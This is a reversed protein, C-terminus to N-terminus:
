IVEFFSSMNKEWKLIKEEVRKERELKQDLVNGVYGETIMENRTEKTYGAKVTSALDDKVEDWGVNKLEMDNNKQLILMMLFAGFAKPAREPRYNVIADSTYVIHTLKRKQDAKLSPTEELGIFWGDNIVQNVLDVYWKSFEMWDPRESLKTKLDYLMSYSSWIARIGIDKLLLSPVSDKLNILDRCLKEYAAEVEKIDIQSPTQSKGFCIWKYAFRGYATTEENTKKQVERIDAIYKKIPEINELVYIISPLLYNSFQNRAIQSNEHNLGVIQDPHIRTEVHDLDLRPIIQSSIVNRNNKDGLLYHYFWDKLDRVSYLSAPGSISLGNREEGRWDFVALPLGSFTEQSEKDNDHAVQIVEQVAISNIDENDLLIARSENIKQSKNNIYVFTKRVEDLLLPNHNITTDTNSKSFGVILVPIKMNEVLPDHKDDNLIAKLATVRHQGDVAVLKIEQDRADVQFQSFEEGASMGTVLMWHVEYGQAALKLITGGCGLTEDDAHPAVFLVKKM